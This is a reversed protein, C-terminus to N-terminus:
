VIYGKEGKDLPGSLCRSRIEREKSNGGFFFVADNENLYAKKAGLM